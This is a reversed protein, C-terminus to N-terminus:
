HGHNFSNNASDPSPSQIEAAAADRDRSYHETRFGIDPVLLLVLLTGMIMTPITLAYKWAREWWLHMFFLIVLMAKALSVAMMAMWGKIPNEMLSSRSIWFSMATLGCLMVFVIVFFLKRNVLHDSAAQNM